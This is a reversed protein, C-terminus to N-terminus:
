EAPDAPDVPGGDAVVDDARWVLSFDAPSPLACAMWGVVAAQLVVADAAFPDPVAGAPVALLPAALALPALSAARLQWAPLDAPIARLRVSALPGLPGALGGDGEPLWQIEFPVGAARLVGAHLLEHLVTGACVALVLVLGAALLESPSM